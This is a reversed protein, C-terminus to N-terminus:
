RSPGRADFSRIWSREEQRAVTSCSGRSPGEGSREGLEAACRSSAIYVNPGASPPTVPHSAGARGARRRGDLQGRGHLIEDRGRARPGRGARPRDGSVARPVGHRAWLVGHSPAGVRGGRETRPLCHAVRGPQGERGPGRGFSVPGDAPPRAGRPDLADGELPERPERGRRPVVHRGGDQRRPERIRLLRPRARGELEERPPRVVRDPRVPPQGLEARLLRRPAAPGRVREIAREPFTPESLCEVLIRVTERATDRTSRSSFSLVEDGNHFELTAGIGELRDALKAASRHRTGSLLLRSTFEALGHSEGEAAVGAPISGRFAVFPNSPLSASVLVAGNGLVTRDPLNM